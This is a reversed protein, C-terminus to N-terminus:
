ALDATTSSEPNSWSSGDTSYQVRLKTGSLALVGQACEIRFETFRTLDAKVRRVTTDFLETVASPVRWSSATTTSLITLDIPVAPLTNSPDSLNKNTLTQPGTLTVLSPPFTNSSDTLDKGTITQAGVTHM